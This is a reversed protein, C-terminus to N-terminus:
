KDDDNEEKTAKPHQIAKFQQRDIEEGNAFLIVDYVGEHPIPLPPAPLVINVVDLRDAIKIGLGTAKAIVSDTSLDRVEAVISYRGQADTMQTFVHFTRTYGPYKDLVFNRFVGILSIKGTVAELITEDCLLLAKCKPKPGYYEASSTM